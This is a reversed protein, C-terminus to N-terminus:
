ARLARKLLGKTPAEALGMVTVEKDKGVKRKGLKMSVVIQAKGLERVHAIQRKRVPRVQSAPLTVIAVTDGDLTTFEVEYGEGRNHVLVVTGIDGQRLGHEPLDCDLIVDHLECFM